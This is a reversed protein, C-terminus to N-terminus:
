RPVFTQVFKIEEGHPFSKEAAVFATSRPVRLPPNIPQKEDTVFLAADPAPGDTFLCYKRAPSTTAATM